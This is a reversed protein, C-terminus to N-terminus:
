KAQAFHKELEDAGGIYKGDIFIQPTTAKGSSRASTARRRWCRTSRWGTSRSSSRRRRATRAARRARVHLVDSPAKAKPDLYKLMTDADSVEFPDGEVEPEIFMKKIVGDDVLMSYRWSRQGFGLNRKDVLM